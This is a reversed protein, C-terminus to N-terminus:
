PRVEIRGNGFATQKGIHVVECYKLLPWFQAMNGSYRVKGVVGGINMETMQRNSYRYVCEWHIDSEVTRVDASLRILSRYDLDPEGSGFAEELTAIRRCCARILTQFDLSDTIRNGSKLRLPTLFLVQISDSSVPQIKQVDLEKWCEKYGPRLGTRHSYIERGGCTVRDLRFRGWGQRLRAGLGKRGMQDVCFLIYPFWETASGFLKFTMHFSEGASYERKEREDPPVLVFPHPKVNNGARTRYTLRPSEFIQFYVCTTNILCRDCENERQSCSFKKLCYGFLGRLASGKHRSLLARTEFMCSFRYEAYIM